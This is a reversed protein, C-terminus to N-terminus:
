DVLASYVLQRLQTRIPYTSSPLLQTMFIATIQEAPDVWFATSAPLDGVHPLRLRLRATELVPRANADQRVTYSM